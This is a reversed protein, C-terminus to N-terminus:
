DDKELFMFTTYQKVPSYMLCKPGFGQKFFNHKIKTGVFICITESQYFTSLKTEGCQSTLFNNRLECVKVQDQYM